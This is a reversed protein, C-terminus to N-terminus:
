GAADRHNESSMNGRFGSIAACAKLRWRGNSCMSDNRPRPRSASVIADATLSNNQAFEILAEAPEEPAWDAAPVLAFSMLNAANFGAIQPVTEAIM